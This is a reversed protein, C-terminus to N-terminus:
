IYYIDALGAEDINLEIIAGLQMEILINIM